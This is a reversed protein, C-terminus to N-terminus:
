KQVGINVKCSVDIQLSPVGVHDILGYRKAHLPRLYLDVRDAKRYQNAWFGSTKGSSVDLLKLLERNLREIEKADAKVDATKGLAGGSVEHIMITANPAAFRMGKSGCGLLVAGCSMAKGSAFTLVPLGCGRLTDVMSLLAYVEGGYSDIVVPVIEQGSDVLEAVESAFAKASAETFDNVTIITADAKIQGNSVRLKSDISTRQIM